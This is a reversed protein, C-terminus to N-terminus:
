EVGTTLKLNNQNKKHKKVPLKINFTYIGDETYQAYIIGKHLEIIKKASYLGLGTGTSNFKSNHIKAFKNFLNKFESKDIKDAKNTISFETYNENQILDIVVISNKFSYTIANSLLNNIVRRIQFKDAFIFCEKNKYNFIISINKEGANYKNEDCVSQILETFEFYTKTLHLANCDSKYTSLITGILNSMYKSTRRTLDLIKYQEPNLKGFQGKLLLNLINIQASTPNKLDHIICAMLSKENESLDRYKKLYFFQITVAILLILAISYTTILM